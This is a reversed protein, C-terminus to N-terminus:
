EKVGEMPLTISDYYALVSVPTEFNYDKPVNVFRVDSPYATLDWAFFFPSLNSAYDDWFPLFYTEVFARPVTTWKPQIRYPKFRVISGLSVGTKSKTSESEIGESAPVYPAEPSFPFTIREGVMCVAIQPAISGTVIKVRWYAGLASTFLRLIAKDDTPTFPALRETWSSGDDSSEVSVAGAATGLNHKKIGLADATTGASCAVTLYKTGPGTSKWGTFEKLDRINLVDYGAATDTATPTGGLFRNDALVVPDAM